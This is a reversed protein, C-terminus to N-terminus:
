AAAHAAENKEHAGAMLVDGNDWDVERTGRPLQITHGRQVLKTEGTWRDHHLKVFVDRELTAVFARWEGNTEPEKKM